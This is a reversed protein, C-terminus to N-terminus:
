MKVSVENEVGQYKFFVFDNVVYSNLSELCSDVDFHVNVKFRGKPELVCCMKTQRKSSTHPLSIKLAKDLNMAIDTQLSGSSMSHSSKELSSSVLSRSDAQNIEETSDIKFHAGQMATDQLMQNMSTSPMNLTCQSLQDSPFKLGLTNEYITKLSNDSSIKQLDSNPNYELGRCDFDSSIRCSTLTTCPDQDIQDTILHYKSMDGQDCSLYFPYQSIISTYLTDETPNYVELTDSSEVCRLEPSVHDVRFLLQEPTFRLISSIFLVRWSTKLVNQLNMKDGTSVPCEIM